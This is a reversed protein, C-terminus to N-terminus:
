IKQKLKILPQIFGDLSDMENNPFKNKVRM